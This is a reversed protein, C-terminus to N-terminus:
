SAVEKRQAHMQIPEAGSSTGFNLAPPADVQFQHVINYNKVHATEGPLNNPSAKKCRAMIANDGIGSLLVM